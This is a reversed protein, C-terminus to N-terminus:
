LRIGRYCLRAALHAIHNTSGDIQKLSFIDEYANNFGKLCTRAYSYSSDKVIEKVDDNFSGYPYAFGSVKKDLAQELIEKSHSIEKRAEDKKLLTLDPHTLTHSGFDIGCDRMEKIERWNLIDREKSSKEKFCFEQKLKQIKLYREEENLLKKLSRNINEIMVIDEKLGASKPSNVIIDRVSDWWFSKKTGIYDVTLFISATIGYKKLIPFAYLYNDRYGDDFNLVLLPKKISGSRLKGMGKDFSAIEFHKKLFVIHQEFIDQPIGLYRFRNDPATIRHYCLICLRNRNRRIVSGALSSNYLGDKLINKIENKLLM